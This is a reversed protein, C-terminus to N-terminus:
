KEEYRSLTLRLRKRVAQRLEPPAEVKVDPGFRLIEMVLEREDAYPLRLEYEGSALWRGQQQPHWEEEAVWRASEPSFVLEAEHAPDGSFIGFSAAFHARWDTEAMEQCDIKLPAAKGIRDLAFVRAADRQHCWATLYWNGRYYALKQPSVQRDSITDDSRSHYHVQLRRREMTASAVLNFIEPRLRRAGMGFFAFREALKKPNVGRQNLTTEIRSWLPLLEDKLFGQGLQEILERITVLTRLEEASFWLGPVHFSHEDTQDLVYGKYKKDYRLPAGYTGRLKQVYRKLTSLSCELKEALKAATMPYKHHQLIELLEHIRDAQAM